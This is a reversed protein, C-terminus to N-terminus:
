RQRYGRARWYKQFVIAAERQKLFWRRWLWGRIAKQLVIIYKALIEARSKELHENDQHKLFLKNHGMQFDEGKVFITRCIKQSSEKCDGKNSPPIAKGLYRFRDVFEKYSYRIPYGAQRIKATEMM